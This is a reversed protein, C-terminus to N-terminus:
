DSRWTDLVFPGGSASPNWGAALGQEVTSRVMDPNIPFGFPFDARLVCGPKAENDEQITLLLDLESEPLRGRDGLVRIMYRYGRGGVAVVRSGKRPMM